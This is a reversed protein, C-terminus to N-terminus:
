ESADALRSFHLTRQENRRMHFLQATSLFTLLSHAPLL